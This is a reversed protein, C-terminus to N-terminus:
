TARAHAVETSSINQKSCSREAANELRVRSSLRILCTRPVLDVPRDLHGIVHVKMLTVNFVLAM